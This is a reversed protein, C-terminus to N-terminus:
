MRCPGTVDRTPVRMFRLFLPISLPMPLHNGELNGTAEILADEAADQTPQKRVIDIVTQHPLHPFIRSLYSDTVRTRQVCWLVLFLELQTLDTFETQSPLIRCHYKGVRRSAMRSLLMKARAALSKAVDERRCHKLNDLLAGCRASLFIKQTGQGDRGVLYLSYFKDTHALVSEPM